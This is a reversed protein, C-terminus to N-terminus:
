DRIKEGDGWKLVQLRVRARGDKRFGLQRAAAPTVDIVVGDRVHEEAPGRDTIRVTAQRGNQLNTLRVETQFPWAPHAATMERADLRELSATREGHLETGYFSALGEVTALVGSDREAAAARATTSDDDGAGASACAGLAPLLLATTLRRLSPLTPM